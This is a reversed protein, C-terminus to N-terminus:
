HCAGPPSRRDRSTVRWGNWRTENCRRQRWVRPQMTAVSVSAHHVEICSEAYVSEYTQSPNLGCSECFLAGNQDIFHARKAAALGSKRESSLHTRLKKGGERWEKDSSPDPSVAAADGKTVVEYGHTRLIKFCATREGGAFHVPRIDRGLRRALAKGFLAKPPLRDGNELLVDYGDSDEFPAYDRSRLLEERVAWLDEARVKRLESAPLRELSRLDRDIREAGLLDALESETTDGQLELRVQKTSNGGKAGQQQGVSKMRRSMEAFLFAPDVIRTPADLIRRDSIPLHRTQTSDVLADALPIGQSALSNLIKLFLKEYDPNRSTGAKKSGGRSFLTIASDELLFIADEGSKLQYVSSM